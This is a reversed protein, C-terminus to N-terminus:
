GDSCHMKRHRCTKRCTGIEHLDKLAKREMKTINKPPKKVPKLLIKQLRARIDWQRDREEKKKSKELENDDQCDKTPPLVSEIWATVEQATDSGHTLACKWGKKLAEM